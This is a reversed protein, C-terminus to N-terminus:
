GKFPWGMYGGQLDYIKTFGMAKLKGAAQQSRSGSRCYLYVPQEKDLKEFEETFNEQQFFDINLASEIAGAKFEDATRVDVLQVDKSKIADKFDSPNLIKITDNQQANAGFLSSFLTMIIIINKM